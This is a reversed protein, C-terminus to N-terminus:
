RIGGSVFISQGQWAAMQELGRRFLPPEPNEKIWGEILKKHIQSLFGLAM